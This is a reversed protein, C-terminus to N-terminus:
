EPPHSRSALSLSNRGWVWFRQTFISESGPPASDSRRTRRLHRGGGLSHGLGGHVAWFIVCFNTGRTIFPYPSLSVPTVRNTCPQRTQKSMSHAFTEEPQNNLLVRPPFLTYTSPCPILSSRTRTGEDKDCADCEFNEPVCSIFTSHWACNITFCPGPSM